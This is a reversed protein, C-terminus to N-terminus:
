RSIDLYGRLYRWCGSAIFLRLGTLVDTSGAHHLFFFMHCWWWWQQFHLHSMHLSATDFSGVCETCCCWDNLIVNLQQWDFKLMVTLCCLVRPELINLLIGLNSELPTLLNEQEHCVVQLYIVCIAYVTHCRMHLTVFMVSYNWLTFDLALRFICSAQYKWFQQTQIKVEGKHSQLTKM